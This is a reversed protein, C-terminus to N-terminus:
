DDVTPSNGYRDDLADARLEDLQDRRYDILEKVRRIEVRSVGQSEARAILLSIVADLLWWAADHEHEDSAGGLDDLLADLDFVTRLHAMEDFTGDYMGRTEALHEACRQVELALHGREHTAGLALDVALREFDFCRQGKPIRDLRRTFISAFEFLEVTSKRQLWPKGIPTQEALM